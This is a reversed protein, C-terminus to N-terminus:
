ILDKGLMKKQDESKIKRIKQAIKGEEPDPHM